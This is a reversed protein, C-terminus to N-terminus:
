VVVSAYLWSRHLPQEMHTETQGCPTNSIRSLFATSIFGESQMSHPAQWSLQWAPAIETSLPVPQAVAMIIAASRPLFSTLQPQVEESWLGKRKVSNYTLLLM